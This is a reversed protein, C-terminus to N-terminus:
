AQRMGAIRGPALLWELRAGAVPPVACDFSKALEYLRCEHEQVSVRCFSHLPWHQLRMLRVQCSKADSKHYKGHLTM